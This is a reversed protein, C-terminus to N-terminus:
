LLVKLLFTFWIAATGSSAALTFVLYGRMPERIEALEVRTSDIM